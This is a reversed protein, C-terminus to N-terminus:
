RDWFVGLQSEAPTPGRDTMNVTKSANMAWSAGAPYADQGALDLFVGLCLARSRNSGKPAEAARGLTIGSSEYTDAGLLDAFVGIGNANGAGLSLNPARYHDDGARDLLMGFSFDHGAGQAMNMPAVYRDNGAVDELYGIAFHASAGQAYWQGLYADTGASDWLMGVGEWYGVGQGFVGCVYRDDGAEDHLIGVGGALSHGDLYDGRRGNGAGQAMSVNHQASQPSPFDIMEDNADYEDKGGRDALYGFGQTQGMGQVQTFGQYRDDGKLDELIGAGFLGFGQGDRYADYTDAGERDLVAAVGVRGSGIGPLHTRYLDDGKEDFLAVYGLVAGGPGPQLGGSKRGEFQAVRTQALARDSLYRDDGDTDLVVSVWNSASKNAPAGLYTDSGGTDVILLTPRDPHTTPGGGSLRVWGWVTEFEVDYAISGPVTGLRSFATQAALLFDHAGACLNKPDVERYIARLEEFPRGQASADLPGTLRDYVPDLNGLKDLAAKRFELVRPLVSLILAAAQQVEEPVMDLSPTQGVLRGKRAMERLAEALSGPKLSSAEEAGNPNGILSRRTGWGLLRGGANLSESPRAAFVALERRLNEAFFPVRWPNESCADYFPSTFEGQRYLRLLNEDFRATQAALGVAGLAIEFAEELPPPGQLTLM